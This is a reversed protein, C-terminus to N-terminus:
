AHKRGLITEALLLDERTTVKINLQDGPIMRVSFGAAEVISADDPFEALGNGLVRALAQGFWERRFVQPTQVFWLRERDLTLRVDRRADVAKVTLGAPLGCAVAGHRKAAAIARALLAPTLCPRAADHVLVWRAQAPVAAFGRAVSEARLAGGRVPPLAKAIRYRRLLQRAAALRGPRAVLVIWSVSPCAQLARLTHALLPQGHVTAFLKDARTGRGAQRPPGFRQSAGAAPVIAAVSM